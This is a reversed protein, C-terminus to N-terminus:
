GGNDMKKVYNWVRELGFVALAMFLMLIVFPVQLNLLRGVFTVFLGSGLALALSRVHNIEYQRTQEGSTYSGLADDLFLLDWAALAAGSDFFMLLPPIGSLLGGVTLCVSGLLCLHPLLSAPYKRALLWAPGTIMVIVAGVWRGTLAYGASLCLVSVVVCAALFTKRPALRQQKM